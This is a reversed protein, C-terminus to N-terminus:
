IMGRPSEVSAGVAGSVPPATPARMLTWMVALVGLGASAGSAWCAACHGLFSHAAAVMEVRGCAGFALISELAHAQAASQFGALAAALPIVTLGIRVRWIGGRTPATTVPRAKETQEGPLTRVPYVGIEVVVCKEGMGDGAVAGPRTRSQTLDFDRAAFERM